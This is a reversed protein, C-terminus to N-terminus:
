GEDVAFDRGKRKFLRTGGPHNIKIEVGYKGFYYGVPSGVASRSLTQNLKSRWRMTSTLDATVALM